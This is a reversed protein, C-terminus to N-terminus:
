KNQKSEEAKVAAKVKAKLDSFKVHEDFLVRQFVEDEKQEEDKKFLGQSFSVLAYTNKLKGINSTSKYLFFVYEKGVVLDKLSQDAYFFMDPLVIEFKKGKVDGKLVDNVELDVFAYTGGLAEEITEINKLKKVNARIVIDSEEVLGQYDSYEESFNASVKNLDPVAKMMESRISIASVNEAEVNPQRYHNLFLFGAVVIGALVLLIGIKKGM